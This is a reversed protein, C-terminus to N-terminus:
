GIGVEIKSIVKKICKGNVFDIYCLYDGIEFLGEFGIWYFDWVM